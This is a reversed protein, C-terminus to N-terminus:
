VEGSRDTKCYMFATYSELKESYEEYLIEYGLHKYIAVNKETNTFLFLDNGVDACEKILQRMLTSGLKKGQYQPQVAFAEVYTVNRGLSLTEEMEGVHTFIEKTRIANEETGYKRLSECIKDLPLQCADQLDVTVLIASFDENTLVVGKEIANSVMYGGIEYNMRLLAQYTIPNSPVPYHSDAFAQAFTLVILPIDEERGFRFGEPLVNNEYIKAM